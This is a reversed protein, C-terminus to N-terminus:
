GRRRDAELMSKEAPTNAGKLRRHTEPSCAPRALGAVEALRALPWGDAVKPLASVDIVMPLHLGEYAAGPPSSGIPECLDEVRVTPADVALVLLRTVGRSVLEAAGAILGGAPGAAKDPDLVFPLGYDRGVVLVRDAGVRLALKWVRDVAREGDWLELAKDRTMRRSAGGALILAGLVESRAAVNDTCRM